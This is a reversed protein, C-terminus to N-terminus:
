VTVASHADYVAEAAEYGSACVHGEANLAQHLAELALNVNERTSGSGMLGIRWLQGKLLGLGGAIDINSEELLRRRIRMDEVGAPVRVANVTWPRHEPAVLLSLGMEQLGAILALHNLHHRQWRAELGEECLIRLAEHLAYNNSIPATHHYTREAGWYREVMSIDLYWSRVKTKRGRIRELARESFTIPALGPPASLCKQSGSYCVDIRNRDVGVPSGGLSAVADVILLADHREALGALGSLDQLVGTSTEAHVLALARPHCTKLAEEILEHDVPEGWKARVAVGRAGSREVIEFMREGFVGNICVVVDDGPEIANVIAAEMGASGTGSVPFTVRNETEFAYRLMGQIEDMCQLFLPDLHGLVPATMAKLVRDPVPSPGPGLLVRRPPNFKAIAPSEYKDGSHDLM